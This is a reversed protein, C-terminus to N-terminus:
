WIGPILRFMVNEMYEKYGPLNILLYKEEDLLRLIITIIIGTVPIFGWVSGLAFPTFLLM